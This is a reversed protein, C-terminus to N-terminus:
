YPVVLGISLGMPSSKYVDAKVRAWCGAAVPAKFCSRILVDVASHTTCLNPVVQYCGRSSTPNCKVILLPRQGDTAIGTPM